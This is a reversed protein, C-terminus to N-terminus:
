GAAEDEPKRRRRPPRPASRPAAQGESTSPAAPAEEAVAEATETAAPAFRGVIQALLANQQETAANHRRLESLLLDRFARQEERDRDVKERMMEIRKEWGGGGFLSRRMGAFAILLLLLLFLDRDHGLAM